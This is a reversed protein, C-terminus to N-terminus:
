GEDEEPLEPALDELVAALKASVDTQGTAEYRHVLAALVEEPFAGNQVGHLPVPGKQFQVRFGDSSYTQGDSSVVIDSGKLNRRKIVEAM